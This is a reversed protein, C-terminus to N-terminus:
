VRREQSDRDQPKVRGFWRPIQARYAEYAPGFKKRLTPEEYLVVFTYMATACVAAYVFLTWSQFLLAEGLLTSVVGVYMPNRSYRYLGRVVLEKPPDIPAPTGKGVRVFDTVCWLLILIGFIMPFAAVYMLTGSPPPWVKADTPLLLWPVYVVVAGPVILTFLVTKFANM